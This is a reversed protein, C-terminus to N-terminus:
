KDSLPKYLWLYPKELLQKHMHSNASSFFQHKQITTSSFVRSLGKSQRSILGTFGLPFWEPINMPLVSASASAGISQGGSTFLWCILFSGIALFSQLCFFFPAVSSSITLYYWWSLPCSNSCVQLCHLVSSGPMSCDMLDCLILYSKIVSCPHLQLQPPLLSLMHLADKWSNDSSVLQLPFKCHIM